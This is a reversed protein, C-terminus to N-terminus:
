GAQAAAERWVAWAARESAARTRGAAIAAGAAAAAAAAVAAVAARAAAEARAAIEALDGAARPAAGPGGCGGAAAWVRNRAAAEIQEIRTM